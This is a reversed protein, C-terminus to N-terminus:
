KLPATEDNEPYRMSSAGNTPPSSEKPMVRWLPERGTTVSELRAFQMGCRQVAKNIAFLVNQRNMHVADGSPALRHHTTVEVELHDERYGTFYVRFPRVGDTILRPCAYKIEERITHILDPLKDIDEYHFRLTQKVLSEKVNSLNSIKQNALQSNPIKIISNDTARLRTEMWGMKIVTGSTGDELLVSDGAYMKNTGTLFLGSVFQTVLGQSALTFALTGVSGLGLISNVAKDTRFPLSDLLLAGVLTVIVGTVLHDIIYLRGTPGDEKVNFAKHFAITKFALVKRVIWITYAFQTFLHAVQYKEVWLFGLTSLVLGILDVGFCAVGVQAAQSIFKSIGFDQEFHEAFTTPTTTTSSSTTTNNLAGNTTITADDHPKARITRLVFRVLRSIRSPGYIFFLLALLDQLHVVTGVNNVIAQFTTKTVFLKRVAPWIKGAMVTTHEV